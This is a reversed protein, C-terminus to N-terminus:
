LEVEYGAANLASQLREPHADSVVKEISTPHWHKSIHDEKDLVELNEPRNDWPTGNKHHIQKGEIADIGHEAIAILRHHSVRKSYDTTDVVMEYGSNKDTYIKPIKKSNRVERRTLVEVDEMEQEIVNLYAGGNNPLREVVGQRNIGNRSYGTADAMQSCSLAQREKLELVAAKGTPTTVIPGESMTAEKM